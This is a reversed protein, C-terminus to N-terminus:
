ILKDGALKNIEKKTNEYINRISHGKNHQIQIIKLNEKLEKIFEKVDEERYNFSKIRGNICFRKESLTKMKEEM